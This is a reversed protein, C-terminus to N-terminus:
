RAKAEQAPTVPGGRSAALQWEAAEVVGIIAADPTGPSFKADWELAMGGDFVYVDARYGDDPYLCVRVSGIGSVILDYWGGGDAGGDQPEYGQEQLHDMVPDPFTDMPNATRTTATM